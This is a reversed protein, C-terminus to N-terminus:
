TCIAIFGGEVFFISFKEDFFFNRDMPTTFPSFFVRLLRRHTDIDMVVFAIHIRSRIV